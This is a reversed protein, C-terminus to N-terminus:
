AEKNYATFIYAKDIVSRNFDYRWARGSGNAIDTRNPLMRPDWLLNPEYQNLQEGIYFYESESFPYIKNTDSNFFYTDPYNAQDLISLEGKLLNQAFAETLPRARDVDSVFYFRLRWGGPDGINSINFSNENAPNVGPLATNPELYNYEPVLLNTFAFPTNVAESAQSLDNFVVPKTADIEYAFNSTFINNIPDYNFPTINTDRAHIDENDIETPPDGPILPNLNKRWDYPFANKALERRLHRQPYVSLNEFNGVYPAYNFGYELKYTVSLIDNEDLFAISTNPEPNYLVRIGIVKGDEGEVLEPTIDPTLNGIGTEYYYFTNNLRVIPKLVPTYSLVNRLESSTGLYSQQMEEANLPIVVEFPKIVYTEKGPPLPLPIQEVVTFEDGQIYPQEPPIYIPTPLAPPPVSSVPPLTAGYASGYVTLNLVTKVVSTEEYGGGVARFGIPLLISEDPGLIDIYSSPDFEWYGSLPEFYFGTPPEALVGSTQDDYEFHINDADGDDPDALPLQGSTIPGGVIAYVSIAEVVIPYDEAGLYQIQIYVTGKENEGAKIPFDPSEKVLYHIPFNLTPEGLVYSFSGDGGIRLNLPYYRILLTDDVNEFPCYCKIIYNLYLENGAYAAFKTIDDPMTNGTINHPIPKNAPAVEYIYNNDSDWGAIDDPITFRTAINPGPLQSRDEINSLTVDKVPTWNVANIHYRKAPYVGVSRSFAFSLRNEGYHSISGIVENTYRTSNGRIVYPKAFHFEGTFISYIVDNISGSGVIVGDFTQFGFDGYSFRQLFGSILCFFQYDDGTHNIPLNPHNEPLFITPTHEYSYFGINYGPILLNLALLNFAPPVGGSDVFGQILSQTSEVIPAAGGNAATTWPLQEYHEEYVLWTRGLASTQAKTPPIVKKKRAPKRPRRAATYVDPKKIERGQIKKGDVVGREDVYVIAGVPISANFTKIVEIIVGNDLKVIPKGNKNYGMWYGRGPLTFTVNNLNAARNQEAVKKIQETLKSPDRLNIPPFTDKPNM